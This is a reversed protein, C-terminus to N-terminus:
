HQNEKKLQEAMASTHSLSRITSWDGHGVIVYKPHRCHRQVNKITGAYATKNADGLNGLDEDEASKILCGGYLIKEKGFWIVINDPAHGEGPYYTNFSCAGVTFVTDKTFLFEARKKNNKKSLEDTRVTSYTRIGQQRYYALGATRDDHFHTPICLVVKQKHKVQISDLLPQFQTTDWPSDFLIVGKQTVVYMGNAPTKGGKYTNYTTYVYFDGTIKTIELKRDTTQGCCNFVSLICTLALIFARM